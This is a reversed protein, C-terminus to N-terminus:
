GNELTNNTLIDKTLDYKLKTSKIRSLEQNFLKRLM